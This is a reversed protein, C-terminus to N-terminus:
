FGGTNAESEHNLKPGQESHSIDWFALHHTVMSVPEQFSAGKMGYGFAPQRGWSPPALIFPYLVFAKHAQKIASRMEAKPNVKKARLLSKV